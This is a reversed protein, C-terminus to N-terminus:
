YHIENSHAQENIHDDDDLDMKTLSDRHRKEEVEKEKNAIIEEKEMLEGQNSAGIQAM